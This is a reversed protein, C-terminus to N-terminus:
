SRKWGHYSAALSPLLSGGLTSTRPPLRLIEKVLKLSVQGAAAGSLGHRGNDFVADGAVRGCDGFAALWDALACGLEIWLFSSGCYVTQHAQARELGPRM